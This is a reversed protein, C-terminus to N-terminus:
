DREREKERKNRGGGGWKYVKERKWVCVRVCGLVCTYVCVRERAKM